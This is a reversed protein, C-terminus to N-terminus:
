GEVAAMYLALLISNYKVDSGDSRSPVLVPVRAGHIYNASPAQAVYVLTKILINGAEINPAILIDPDGAVESVIGKIAASKASLTNDMALPGDVIASSIQGRQSMKSLLAADLTDPMAENVLEVACLVAAKPKRGCFLSACAAANDIIAAKEQLNPKINMGADAVVLLRNLMSLEVVTNTSLLPSRKIGTEKHLIPRFFDATKVLGKMLVDAKGERCLSAGIQCANILNGEDILEVGALDLGVKEAIARTERADGILIPQVLKKERAHRLAELGEEDASAVLALRPVSDGNEAARRVVAAEMEAFTRM